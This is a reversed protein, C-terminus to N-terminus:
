PPQAREILALIAAAEAGTFYSRRMPDGNAMRRLLAIAGSAIHDPRAALGLKKRWLTDIVRGVQVADANELTISGYNTQLQCSGGRLLEPIQKALAYELASRAEVRHSM